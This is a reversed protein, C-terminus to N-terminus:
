PYFIEITYGSVTREATGLTAQLPLEAGAAVTRANHGLDQTTLVRRAIVRGQTDTLTLDFAPLALAIAARNRLVVSLRVLRTGPVQVLGSSEVSLAEISRPAEVRCGAVACVQELPGRLGPWRAAALDRYTFLVQAVLLLLLGACGAALTARARSSRWREAREADRIFAPTPV